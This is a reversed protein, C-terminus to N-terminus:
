AVHNAKLALCRRFVGIQNGDQQIPVKLTQSSLLNGTPFYRDEDARWWAIDYEDFYSLVEQRIPAFLNKLSDPHQLIHSCEKGWTNNEKDWWIGNGSAGEFINTKTFLAVQRDRQKYYFASKKM